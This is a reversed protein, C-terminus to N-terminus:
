CANVKKTFAQGKSEITKDDINLLWSESKRLFENDLYDANM